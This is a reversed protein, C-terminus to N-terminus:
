LKCKKFFFCWFLLYLDDDGSGGEHTVEGSGDTNVDSNNNADAMMNYNDEFFGMGRMKDGILRGWVTFGSASPHIMDSMLRPDVVYPEDTYELLQFCRWVPQHELKLAKEAFMPTRRQQMQTLIPELNMLGISAATPIDLFRKWSASMASKYQEAATIDLAHSGICQILKGEVLQWDVAIPKDYILDWYKRSFDPLYNKSTGLRFSNSIAPYHGSLLVNKGKRYLLSVIRENNNAVMSVVRSYRWPLYYLTGIHALFDNGGIHFVVNKHIKYNPSNPTLCTVLHKLLGVSTEGNVGFNQVNWGLAELYVDIPLFVLGAYDMRSDGYITAKTNENYVGATSCKDNQEEENYTPAPRGKFQVQAFVNSNMITILSVLFILITNM